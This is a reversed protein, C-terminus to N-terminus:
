YYKLTKNDGAEFLILSMSNSAPTRGNTWGDKTFQLMPHLGCCCIRIHQTSLGLKLIIKGYKGWSISNETPQMPKCIVILMHSRGRSQWSCIPMHSRGRSQWSCVMLPRTSLACSPSHYQIQKPNWFTTGLEEVPHFCYIGQTAKTLLHFQTSAVKSNTCLTIM